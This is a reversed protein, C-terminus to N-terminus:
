NKNTQKSSYHFTKLGLDLKSISMQMIFELHLLIHKFCINHETIVFVNKSVTDKFLYICAFALIETLWLLIRCLSSLRKKQTLTTIFGTM